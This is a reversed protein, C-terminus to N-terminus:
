STTPQLGYKDEFQRVYVEARTKRDTLTLTHTLRNCRSIQHALMEISKLCALYQKVETRSADPLNSPFRVVHDKYM